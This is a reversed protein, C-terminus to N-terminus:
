CVAITCKYTCVDCLGHMCCLWLFNITSKTYLLMTGREAFLAYMYQKLQLVLADISFYVNLYRYIVIIAIPSPHAVFNICKVLLYLYHAFLFKVANM